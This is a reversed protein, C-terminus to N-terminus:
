GLPILGEEVAKEPGFELLEQNRKKVEGKVNRRAPRIGFSWPGEKRTDEKNCYEAALSPDRAVEWHARPELKKMAAM